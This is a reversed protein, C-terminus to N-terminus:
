IVAGSALNSSDRQAAVTTWSRERVFPLPTGPDDSDIERALRHGDFVCDAITRPADCDGVRYLANIGNAQLAGARFEAKLERFLADNPRRGTCLVVADCDLKRPRQESDYVNAIVLGDEEVRVPVHHGTWAVGLSHLRGLMRPAELTGEMMPAPSGYHTVISVDKGELALREAVSVGMFYGELDLVVVREGPVPKDELVLQEPTLQNPRGADAGPLASMTAGSLGDPAWSSGTALIVIEAGYESVDRASLHRGLIVEANRLKDLQIQRYNIVRRWEGLGPLRTIWRMAGGLEDEAEVLHVRRMGRKALVIACEM